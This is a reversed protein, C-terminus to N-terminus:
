REGQLATAPSEMVLGTLTEAGTDDDVELTVQNVRLSGTYITRGTNVHVRVLDGVDFDDFLAPAGELASCRITVRPNPSLEALGHQQLTVGDTADGLDLWKEFVGYEDQSAANEVVAFPVDPGGGSGGLVIARNVPLFREVELSDEDLNDLTGPGFEFRSQDSVTGSNPYLVNFTAFNPAADDLADIRFFFGDDVETLQVIAEGISKGGEYVRDRVVSPAITGEALNTDGHTSILEWAIEGADTSGFVLPDRGNGPVMVGAGVHRDTLYFFPDYAACAVYDTREVFPEGIRGAFRLVGDRYYKVVRSAILLEIADHDDTAVSFGVSCAGNIRRTLKLGYVDPFAKQGGLLDTIIIRHEHM